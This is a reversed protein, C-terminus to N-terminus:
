WKVVDMVTHRVKELPSRQRSFKVTGQREHMDFKVEVDSIRAWDPIDECRAVNGLGSEEIGILREAVRGAIMSDWIGEQRPAAYLLSVAKRRIIPHRCKHAVAYLPAVTFLDLTFGPGRKQTPKDCISSEVVLAALNVVHEFRDTFMDWATEDYVNVPTLNLYIMAFSHSMELTRIAQLGRSNLSKGHAQLFAQFAVLWGEFTDLIEQRVIETTRLADPSRHGGTEANKADGAENEVRNLFDIFINWHYDLSNRAQELSIFAVPIESCFGKEVDRPGKKLLMSPTGIMQVVTM